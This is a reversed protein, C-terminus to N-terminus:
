KASKVLQPSLDPDNIQILRYVKEAEPRSLPGTYAVYYSQSGGQLVRLAKPVYLETKLKRDQLQKVATWAETSTAYQGIVVLYQDVQAVMPLADSAHIEDAWAVRVHLIGSTKAPEPPPM